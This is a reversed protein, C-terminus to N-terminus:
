RGLEEALRDRYREVNGMKVTEYGRVQDVLGVLRVARAPDTALMAACQGVLSVYEGILARETRRVKALGFPDVPTGRLRRGARLAGMLPTSWRGFRLKHGVGMSRLMPPHLNWTIKADAGFQAGLRQRGALLLRAVEYEDKYAMLHHLQQAVTRAFAGDGGAAAEALHARRVVEVYRDAYRRSQYGVLDGARLEVARRLEPDDIGEVAMPEADYGAREGAARAVSAPDATWHRGWRFSALNADVSAGNLEIAKEIAAADLPILGAQYAIGLVFVNATVASGLLATTLGAADVYLNRDAVTRRELESRIPDLELTMSDLKGVMRGTPTVSTSVVAVSHDRDLGGLNAATASALADFALLVDVRGVTADGITVTSVVPGAKQSLGTQDATRATRGAIQAAAALVQSVTVVGTGGIGPMRITVDDRLYTPVPLGDVSAPAPRRAAAGGVKRGPEITM